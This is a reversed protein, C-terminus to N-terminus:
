RPTKSSGGELAGKGAGSTEGSDCVSEGVWSQRQSFGSAGEWWGHPCCQLSSQFPFGCLQWRSGVFEQPQPLPCTSVHFRLSCCSSGREGWHHSCLLALARFSHPHTRPSQPHSSLLHTPLPSLISFHPSHELSVLLLSGPLCGKGACTSAQTRVGRCRWSTNRPTLHFSWGKSSLLAM